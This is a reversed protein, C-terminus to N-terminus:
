FYYFSIKGNIASIIYKTSLCYISMGILIDMFKSADNTMVRRFLRETFPFIEIKTIKQYIGGYIITNSLLINYFKRKDFCSEQTLWEKSHSKKLSLRNYM